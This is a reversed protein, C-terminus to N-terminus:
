GGAEPEALERALTQAVDGHQQRLQAAVESLLEPDAALVTALADAPAPSQPRYLRAAVGSAGAVGSMLVGTTLAEAQTSPPQTEIGGDAILRGEVHLTGHVTVTNDSSVTLCPKFVSDQTSWTGIVFSRGDAEPLAVRLERQNGDSFGTLQWPGAARASEPVPFALAGGDIRLEGHIELGGRATTVGDQTVDLVPDEASGRVAFVHQDGPESPGLDVRATEAPHVVAAANVGAYRRVSGDVTFQAPTVSRRVRGLLVPWPHDEEPATQEPGFDLDGDPVGPPHGADVAEDAPTVLLRPTEQWRYFASGETACPAYGAPPQDSGIRDYTIWVDYAIDGTAPAPPLEPVPIRQLVVVERGYGDIALGAEVSLPGNGSTLALGHVIGWSHGGINHRRRMAVHYAQEDTFDQPRLFQGDFYRVRAIRDADV